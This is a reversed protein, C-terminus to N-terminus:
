SSSTHPRALSVCRTEEVPGYGIYNTGANNVLVDVHGYVQLAEEAAERIKDDTDYLNLLLM